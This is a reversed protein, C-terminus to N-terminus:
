SDEPPKLSHFLPYFLGIRGESGTGCRGAPRTPHLVAWWRVVTDTIIPSFVPVLWDKGEWGINWSWERENCRLWKTLRCVSCSRRIRMITLAMIPPQDAAASPLSLGAASAPAAFASINSVRMPRSRPLILRFSAPSITSISRLFRRALSSSTRISPAAGRSVFSARHPEPILSALM